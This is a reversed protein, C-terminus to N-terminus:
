PPRSRSRSRCPRRGPGGSRVPAAALLDPRDADLVVHPDLAGPMSASRSRPSRPSSRARRGRRPGRRGVRGGRGVVVQASGHSSALAAVRRRARTRRRSGRGRSASAGVAVGVRRSRSRAAPRPGSRRSTRGVGVHGRDFRRGGLGRRLRRGLGRRLRRRLRRGLGRRLRRGRHGRQAEVDGRAVAPEGDQRPRLCGGAPEVVVLRKPRGRGVDLRDVRRLRGATAGSLRYPVSRDHSAAM